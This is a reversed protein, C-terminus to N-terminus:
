DWGFENGGPACFGFSNQGWAFPNQWGALADLHRTKYNQRYVLHREQRVHNHLPARVSAFKQLLNTQRFRPM